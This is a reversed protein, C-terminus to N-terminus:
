ASKLIKSGQTTATTATASTTATTRNVCSPNQDLNHCVQWDECGAVTEIIEATLPCENSECLECSYAFACDDSLWAQGIQLM